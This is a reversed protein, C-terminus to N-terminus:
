FDPMFSGGRLRGSSSHLILHFFHFSSHYAPEAAGVRFGLGGRFRFGLGLNYSPNAADLSVSYRYGWSGVVRYAIGVM